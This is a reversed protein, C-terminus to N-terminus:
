LHTLTGSGDLPWRCRTVLVCRDHRQLLRRELCEGRRRHRGARVGLEQM